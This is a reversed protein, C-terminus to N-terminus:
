RRGDAGPPFLVDERDDVAIFFVVGIQFAMRVPVGCWVGQPRDRFLAFGLDRGIGAHTLGGFARVPDDVTGPM